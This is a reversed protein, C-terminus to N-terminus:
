PEESHARREREIREHVDLMFAHFHVRRKRELPAAAFFMDMLMSKGRGVPGCLYLGVPAHSGGNEALGFRALWGRLGTEPRYHLLARHLSQLREIALQQAPDPELLGRQRLARYLAM